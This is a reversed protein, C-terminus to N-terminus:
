TPTDFGLGSNESTHLGLAQLISVTAPDTETLPKINDMVPTQKKTYGLSGATRFSKVSLDVVKLILKWKTSDHPVNINSSSVCSVSMSIYASALMDSNNSRAHELVVNLKQSSVVTDLKVKVESPMKSSDLLFGEMETDTPIPDIHFGSEKLKARLDELFSKYLGVKYLSAGSTKSASVNSSVLLVLNLYNSTTVMGVNSVVFELPSYHVVGDTSTSYKASNSSITSIPKHNVKVLISSNPVFKPVGEAKKEDKKQVPAANEVPANVKATTAKMKNLPISTM